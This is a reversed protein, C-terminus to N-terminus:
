IDTEFPTKEEKFLKSYKNIIQKKNDYFQVYNSKFENYFESVTKEYDKDM